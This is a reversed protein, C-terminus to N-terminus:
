GGSRSDERELGDRLQQVKARYVEAMNPHLLPVPAETAALQADLETKREQLANMKVKLEAGTFCELIAKIVQDIERQVRARELRASSTSGIGAPRTSGRWYRGVQVRFERDGAPVHVVLLTRLTLESKLWAHAQSRAIACGAAEFM